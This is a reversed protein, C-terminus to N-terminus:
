GRGTPLPIDIGYGITDLRGYIRVIQTRALTNRATLKSKAVVLQTAVAAADKM